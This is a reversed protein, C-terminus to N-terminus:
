TAFRWVLCCTTAAQYHSSHGCMYTHIYTHIYTYKLSHLDILTSTRNLNSIFTCYTCYTYYTNVTRGICIHIYTHIFIQIHTFLYTRIHIYRYSAYQTPLYRDARIHFIVIVILIVPHSRQSRHLLAHEASACLLRVEAHVQQLLFYIFKLARYLAIYSVLEANRIATLKSWGLGSLQPILM